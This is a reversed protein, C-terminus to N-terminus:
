EGCRLAMTLLVATEILEIAAGYVDGSAGGLRRLAGRGILGALLAAIVLASPAAFLAIGAVLAVVLWGAQRPLQATIAEAM